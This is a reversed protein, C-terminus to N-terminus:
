TIHAHMQVSAGLSRLANVLEHNVHWRDRCGAQIGLLSAWRALVLKCDLAIYSANKCSLPVLVHHLRPKMPMRPCISTVWNSPLSADRTTDSYFEVTVNSFAPQWGACGCRSM